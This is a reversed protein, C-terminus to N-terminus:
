RGHLLASLRAAADQQMGPLAHAYTTMLMVVSHGLRASVVHPPTGAALLLTAVTHRTGHFKIRRCGAAAVLQQFRAESLTAIPQGCRAAPTQCDAHEKAFILGFDCYAQGNKLRLELQQRRHVRLAAITEAGLSLTRSKGTKTPGFSPVEGATDLQREVILTAADIDVDTWRLGNLEAKRCGADLALLVYAGLQGGVEKAQAVVRAAEAASWCHERAAQAHDPSARRRELDAAPSITLFRDRVAKKLARHLVAHHVQVSGAAGPVDALYRELDSSRVKQLPIFAIPSKAVHQEVISRYVRYTSPRRMPPKVSKELWTRLYDLLTIKSPEIFTGGDVSGLLATLKRQAEKRQERQNLGPSSKFTISKQRRRTKGTVPDTEYGLDFVLTWSGPYRSKLSGRAVTAEKAPQATRKRLRPTLDFSRQADPDRYGFQSVGFRWNRCRTFAPTLGRWKDPLPPIDMLTAGEVILRQGDVMPMEFGEGPAPRCPAHLNTAYGRPSSVGCVYMAKASPPLVYETRVNPPPAWTGAPKLFPGALCAACHFQPRFGCVAKCWLFAYGTVKPGRGEFTVFISSSGIM